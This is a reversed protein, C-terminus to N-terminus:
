HVPGPPKTAILEKVAALIRRWAARGEIDGAAFLDDARQAYLRQLPRLVALYGLALFLALLGVALFKGPRGEPLTM